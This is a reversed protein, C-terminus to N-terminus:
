PREESALPQQWEFDFCIHEETVARNYRVVELHLPDADYAELAAVDEFTVRVCFDFGRSRNGFNTGVAFGIVGPVDALRGLQELLERSEAPGLAPAKFAIVHDIV